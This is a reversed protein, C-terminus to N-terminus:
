SSACPKAEAAMQPASHQRWCHLRLNSPHKDPREAGAAAAWRGPARVARQGGAVGAGCGVRGSMLM